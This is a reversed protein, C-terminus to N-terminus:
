KNLENSFKEILKDFQSEVINVNEKTVYSAILMKYMTEKTPLVINFFIMVLLLIILSNRRKILKSRDPVDEEFDEILDEDYLLHLIVIFIVSSLGILIWLGIKLTDILEIIYIVWPNIIFENM